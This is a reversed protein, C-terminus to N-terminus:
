ETIAVRFGLHESRDAPQSATRTSCRLQFQTYFFSGGRGIREGDGNPDERGDTAVYPYVEALSSTWEWVNGSMDLLGLASAGEPYSGVPMTEGVNNNFNSLAETPSQNGWAFTRQDTGRCAKEWEAETPLRGGVWAAYTTAQAWDVHTVPHNAYTPQDWLTNAPPTCRGANVCRAYQANTTETQQLWFPEISLAHQPLENPEIADAPMSGMTFEGGPIRVYSANDAPNTWVDQVESLAIRFGLLQDSRTLTTSTRTTCRQESAAQGYAGGRVIRNGETNLNERGDEAFYPYQEDLSVTWEQVNGSMDLLGYPSAGEAYSGTAVTDGISTDVNGLAAQPRESGWPYDRLTQGKCSKEWEAESPLRGGAWRAYTNAQAWTVHTVPHNAFEPQDWRENDPAACFGAAVCRQYQANTTETQAIWFADLSVTHAPRENAAGNQADITGITFGGAPVFVYNANDIPSQWVTGATADAPLLEAIRVPASNEVINPIPQLLAASAAAANMISDNIGTVHTTLGDAYVLAETITDTTFLLLAQEFARPVLKNAGDLSDVISQATASLQATARLQPATADADISELLSAAQEAADEIYIRVGSGDGPNQAQGDRDLDGFLIGQEGDLINVIHETHRRAEPLEADTLSNQLFSSHEVAIGSQSEATGLTELIAEVLATDVGTNAIEPAATSEDAQMQLGEVSILAASSQANITTVLDTLQNGFTQTETVTDSAFIKLAVLLAENVAVQGDAVATALEETGDIGAATSSEVFPQVSNFYVRVGTGDGPNQTQGDRDLDGYFNGSDGDLINVIHETHRRAEPLDAEGLSNQLFGTHEVAIASQETAALLDKMAADFVETDISASQPAIMEAVLEEILMQAVLNRGNLDAVHQTLEDGFTQTETITDAAFVKVAVATAETLLESSTSLAARIEEIQSEATTENGARDAEAAISDVLDTLEVLYVRVGTGDGPNQAQGDRDLDGYFIGSEGDLTNIIHETHRRAEPLDAEGLSNQLFSTHEVAIASQAVTTSILQSSSIIASNALSSSEPASSLADTPAVSSSDALANYLTVASATARDVDAQLAVILKTLEDAFPLADTITDAAFIELAVDFAEAISDNATNIAETAQGAAVLLDEDDVGTEELAALIGVASTLADAMYVRVGIGDGPNQPQGDRDLDGFFVGSEGDLINVIHETHRRAEPLDTDTLSNQLFGTHEVAIKSQENAVLLVGGTNDDIPALLATLPESFAEPLVDLDLEAPTEEQANVATSNNLHLGFLLVPLVITWLVFKLVLTRNHFLSYQFVSLTKHTETYM